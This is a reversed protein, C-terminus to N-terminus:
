LLNNLLVSVHHNSETALVALDAQGDENYDGAAIGAAIGDRTDSFNKAPVFNRDGLNELIYPPHNRIGLAIDQDGDEDLDAITLRHLANASPLHQAPLFTGTGDGKNWLIAVSPANTFQGTNTVVIDVYSDADLDAAHIMWRRFSRRVRTPMSEDPMPLGPGPRPGPAPVPAPASERGTYYGCVVAAREPLELAHRQAVIFM